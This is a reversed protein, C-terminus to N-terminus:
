GRMYIPKLALSNECPTLYDILSFAESALDGVNNELGLYSLEGKISYDPHAKIYEMVEENVKTQDEELCRNGQYVAFYSRGSRANMLTITPKSGDKLIHLSSVPYVPVKLSLALIKATTIAIRIGTYSGPGVGVIVGSIDKSSYHYKELLKQLEPIMKESQCQWAEYSVSEIVKTKSAIAVTLYTASSDLIVYLM